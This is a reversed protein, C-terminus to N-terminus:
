GPSSIMLPRRGSASSFGLPGAILASQTVPYAGARHHPAVSEQVSGCEGIWSSVDRRRSATARRRRSQRTRAAVRCPGEPPVGIQRCQQSFPDGGCGGCARHRRRRLDSFDRFVSSSGMPFSSVLMRSSAACRGGPASGCAWRVRHRRPRLHLSRPVTATLSRDRRRCAAVVVASASSPSSVMAVCRYRRARRIVTSRSLWLLVRTWQRM